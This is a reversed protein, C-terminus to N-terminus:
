VESNESSSHISKDEVAVFLSIPKFLTGHTANMYYCSPEIYIQTFICNIM